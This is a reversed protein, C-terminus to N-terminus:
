TSGDVVTLEYQVVLRDDVELGTFENPGLGQKPPVMRGVSPDGRADEDREGLLGSQDILDTGPNKPGRAGFDGAPGPQGGATYWAHRYVERGVLEGVRLKGPGNLGRHSVGTGGRAPDGELEGLAHQHLVAGGVELSQVGDTGQTNLDGDIVEPGAIRRQGVQLVERDGM